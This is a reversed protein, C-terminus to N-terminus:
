VDDKKFQDLFKYLLKFFLYNNRLYLKHINKNLGSLQELKSYMKKLLRRDKFDAAVYFRKESYRIEIIDLYKKRIDTTMEINKLTEVLIREHEDIRELAKEENNDGQSMSNSYIIYGYLPKDLFYRKCCYYIPLLMQWNQGRRAPYIEHKPNVKDFASMRLMHCGSCFHSKELLLYEFQDPEYKHVLGDTAKQIPTTLDDSNYYYADSSVIDYEKHEVLIKLREEVSTDMYFDDPDAWCLFEGEIYKLGTNIAGGLGQNEQYIYLFDMNKQLFKKRYKQLIAATDDTSGDDIAILQINQYTQKLVSDLFRSLTEAVNYCPVIITVKKDSMLKDKITFDDNFLAELKKM